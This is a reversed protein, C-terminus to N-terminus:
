PHCVSHAHLAFHHACCRAKVAEKAVPAGDAEFLLERGEILQQLVRHLLSGFDIKGTKEKYSRISQTGKGILPSTGEHCWGRMPSSITPSSSAASPTERESCNSFKNIYFYSIKQFHFLGKPQQKDHQEHSNGEVRALRLFAALGVNGFGHLWRFHRCLRLRLNHFVQRPEDQLRPAVIAHREFAPSSKHHNVLHVSCVEHSMEVFVGFASPSLRARKGGLQLPARDRDRYSSLVDIEGSLVELAAQRELGVLRGRKGSDVIRAILARRVLHLYRGIDKIGCSVSVPGVNGPKLILAIQLHYQLAEALADGLALEIEKHVEVLGDTSGFALLREDHENM